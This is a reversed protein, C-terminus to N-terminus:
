FRATANIGVQHKDFSFGPSNSDRLIYRHWLSFTAIRNMVYKLQTDIYYVNDSRDQGFFRDKEYTAANSLVINPRFEYDFGLQLADARVGTSSTDAAETVMQEADFHVDIRRTPSWTLMARYAPGEINGISAATFHQAMYGGAIEGKILHTLELDFGTLARYGSSDLPQDPQGRLDRRNGEFSAFWATRESFAYDVRGHATYVQGDRADQSIVTGDQARVSGYNYSDVRAGASATVRGFEQRWTEDASFLSYPTPEVAGAPSSLTGVGEHLYAARLSTLLQIDHRLDIHASGKFDVDSENLGPNDKYVTSQENLKLDIGHREWLTSAHLGAGIQAAIDSHKNTDSSFVNSDYFMGAFLMPDFMWSGARIGKPQYDPWVRRSIPMDEPAVDERQDPDTLQPLPTPELVQQANWPPM